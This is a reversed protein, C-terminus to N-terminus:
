NMSSETIFIESDPDRAMWAAVAAFNDHRVEPHNSTRLM